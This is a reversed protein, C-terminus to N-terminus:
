SALQELEALLRPGLRPHSGYGNAIRILDGNMVGECGSLEFAITLRQGNPYALLALIQSGVDAPCAFGGPPFPPLENFERVLKTVLRPDSLLRSRVLRDRPSDNVGSYRCLRM